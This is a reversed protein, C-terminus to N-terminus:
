AGQRLERVIKEVESERIGFEALIKGAEGKDATLALLLHEVSVYSDGLNEMYRRAERLVKTFRTGAHLQESGGPATAFRSLATELRAKLASPERGLRRVITPVLGESQTVLALLLHEPEITTNNRDLALGQAEQIAAQTKDTFNKEMSRHERPTASGRAMAFNLM